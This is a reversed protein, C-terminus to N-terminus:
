KIKRLSSNRIILEPKLLVEAENNDTFELGKHAALIFDAVRKGMLAGNQDVTSLSPSVYETFSENSFGVIGFDEPINVGNSTLYNMAGLASYDSSSFLADPKNASSMLTQIATKGAEVKSDVEMILDKNLPLNHHNIADLYGELRAQYIPTKENVIFHAIRQYGMEILHCVAQYAGTYDDITVSRSNLEKVPRDFLILPIGNDVIRHLHDKNNDGKCHSLVIASVQAMQLTEVCKLEKEISDHSQSIMINLGAEKVEEELSRIVSSFIGRDAFPVIVGIINTKGKRLSSALVNREYGLRKATEAVREQMKISISRNKNLARSVTAASTKLEKAIDHITVKRM